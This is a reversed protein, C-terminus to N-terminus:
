RDFRRFDADHNMRVPESSSSANKQQDMEQGTEPCAQMLEPDNLLLESRQDANPAPATRRVSFTGGASCGAAGASGVTRTGPAASSRQIDPSPAPERNGAAL